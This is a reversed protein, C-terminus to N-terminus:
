SLSADCCKLCHCCTKCIRIAPLKNQHHAVSTSYISAARADSVKLETLNLGILFIYDKGLQQTMTVVEADRAALQREVAKLREELEEERQSPGPGAQESVPEKLQSLGTPGASDAPGVATFKDDSTSLVSDDFTSLVNDAPGVATFKDDSTSLVNDDFTSLVNDGATSLVNDDGVVAMDSVPHAPSAAGTELAQLAAHLARLLM